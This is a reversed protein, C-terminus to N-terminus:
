ASRLRAFFGKKEPHRSLVAAAATHDAGELVRRALRRVVPRADALARELGVLGDPHFHGDLARLARYRVEHEPHDLGVCLAGYAEFTGEEALKQVALVAGDPEPRSLLRTWHATLPVGVHRAVDICVQRACAGEVCRILEQILEPRVHGLAEIAPELDEPEREFLPLLVDSKDAWGSLFAKGASGASAHARVLLDVFALVEERALREEALRHLVAACAEEGEATLALDIFRELGDDEVRCRQPPDVQDPRETGGGGGVVRFADRRRDADALRVNGEEDVEVAVQEVSPQVLHVGRGDGRALTIFSDDDESRPACMAEVLAVLDDEDVEPTVVLERAGDRFLPFWVRERARGPNEVPPGAPGLRLRVPGTEAAERFLEVLKTQRVLERTSGDRLHRTRVVRELAAAVADSM